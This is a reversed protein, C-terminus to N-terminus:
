GSLAQYKGESDWRYVVFGASTLDGKTNWSAEGLVTPVPNSALWRAAGESRSSKCGNFAAAMAQVAAYAHLTYGELETGNKRFAEVAEKAEPLLRPDRAFTMYVGDVYQAGGAASVFDQTTIGDGSVFATDKLGKERVQRVLPGADPHLGGFFIVDIKAAHLKTIFAGFDKDGRSIGEYLAAKVGRKRLQATVEDALGQGFTGKDHLIAIQSGKLRDVIFDGAVIGQQNNRGCM